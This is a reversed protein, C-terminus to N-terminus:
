KQCNTTLPKVKTELDFISHGNCTVDHDTFDKFPSVGKHSCFSSVKTRPRSLPLAIAIADASVSHYHALRHGRAVLASPRNRPGKYSLQIDILRLPLKSLEGGRRIGKLNLFPRALTDM